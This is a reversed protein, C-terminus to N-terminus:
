KGASPKRYKKGQWSDREELRQRIHNMNKSKELTWHPALLNKRDPDGTVRQIIYDPPLLELFDILTDTYEEREMCRFEGSRYMGALATGETVFLSHIKVGHIPQDALFEATEMMMERTEGPLGLIVHACINLGSKQTMKVATKFADRNHGRNIRELTKDHSSQLGFEIWVLYDSAFSYVLELIDKDMCDPRTGISLGVVGEHSLAKKYLNELINVPAYTNTFSQFYAIFKKARYRNRAIKVGSLVQEEIPINKQIMAGNGSGKPDCYICGGTSISGDRNPCTFGADISIKQVREGFFERLYTNYDRYRKM